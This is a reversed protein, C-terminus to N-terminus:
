DDVGQIYENYWFRARLGRLNRKIESNKGEKLQTFRIIKKFDISRLEGLKFDVIYKKKKYIITPLEYTM